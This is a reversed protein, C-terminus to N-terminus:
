GLSHDQDYISKFLATSSLVGILVVTISSLPMLIAAIVPSLLGQVAFGIGILNYIFAIGYTFYIIRVAKKCISFILPIKSFNEAGIIIDCAPTFNSTDESISIGINSQSLAGADNLGDGIMAVNHNETQLGKIFNLKDFPSNEFLISNWNGYLDRLYNEDNDNDGSILSLSYYTDLRNLISSLGVRFKSVTTFGGVIKHDIQVLTNAEVAITDQAYRLEPPFFQRSGIKIYKGDVNGEIGLGNHEKFNSVTSYDQAGFAESISKSLTHISNNALSGILKKQYDSLETGAYEISKKSAKTITGTKDFVISNIRSCDEIVQTNKFFINKQSFLRIINGFTFPMTLAVACPCAIILVTAFVHVALSLDSFSHYLFSLLSIVIITITFYKAINKNIESIGNSINKKKFSSDNWLQTLYSTSVTKLVKVEAMDGIIKGGSYVKENATVQIPESEGTVFSYDIKVQKSLLLGDTPIIEGHRIRLLDGLVIKKLGIKKEVGNELLSTAIPFYSRYDLDFRIRQYTIAKFWKGILLFFVLGALSDLYGSGIGTFIDFISKLFLAIIGLSIPVDINLHKQFLSNWASTLYDRACYFVIPLILLVNFYRIYKSLIDDLEGLGLYEPFSLLMINGFAFGSVGLKYFLSSNDNKSKNGDWDNLSIHPTYGIKSLLEVLQRLSIVESDFHILAKKELFNVKSHKIGENIRSINELLWLCSSCHISPLSLWVILESGQKHSIFKEIISPDDLYEYTQSRSEKRSVGANDNLTYFRELKHEHLIEFVLKCGGCCFIKDEIKWRQGICDDGCHSCQTKTIAKRTELIAEMLLYLDIKLLHWLTILIM